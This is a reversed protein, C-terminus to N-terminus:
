QLQMKAKRIARIWGLAWFSGFVVAVSLIVSLIVGHSVKM